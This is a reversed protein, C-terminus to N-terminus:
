EVEKRKKKKKVPKEAEEPAPKKKRKKKPTSATAHKIEIVDPDVGFNDQVYKAGEGADAEFMLRLRRTYPSTAETLGTDIFVTDQERGTVVIARRIDLIM